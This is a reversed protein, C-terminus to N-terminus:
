TADDPKRAEEGTKHSAFRIPMGRAQVDRCVASFYQTSEEDSRGHEYLIKGDRLAAGLLSGPMMCEERIEELTTVIIDRALPLLALRDDIAAALSRKRGVHDFVVLLDM